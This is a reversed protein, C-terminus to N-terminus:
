VRMIPELNHIFIHQIQKYPPIEMESIWNYTTPQNVFISSFNIEGGCDIPQVFDLGLCIDYSVNVNVPIEFIPNLPDNTQLFIPASFNGGPNDVSLFPIDFTQNNNPTVTFTNPSLTAFGYGSDLIEIAKEMISEFIAFDYNDGSAGAFLLYYIKTASNAINDLEHTDINTSTGVYQTVNNGPNKVIILHNVSPDGAGYVKKAFGKYSNGLYSYDIVTNDYSGSGDAGLGGSIGFSSKNEIDAAFVFLGPVKLTFYQGDTGLLNTGSYDYIEEISNNSYPISTSEVNIYNGGDYMDGGGDSISNGIEGNSFNFINPILNTIELYNDNLSELSGELGNTNNSGAFNFVLNSNGSNSVTIQQITDDSCSNLSVSLSSPNTTIIPADFSEGTLSVSQNGINSEITLEANFTNVTIPNFYLTISDSSFPEINLQNLDTSFESSNFNFNSIELMDCGDNEIYLVLSDSTYEMITPFDITTDSVSINASGVLNLTVPITTEPNLPDNSHIIFTTEHVGAVLDNANITYNVSLSNNNEILYVNNTDQFSFWNPVDLILNVTHTNNGGEYPGVSSTNIIQIDLTGDLLWTAYTAADFSYTNVIDTGNQVNGDDIIEIYDGEIYLQAYESSSDYDGNIIIELTLMESFLSFNGFSHFTQSSYNSYTEFSTTENPLLESQLNFVADGSGSNSFPFALVSVDGCNLTINVASSDTTLIPPNQVVLTQSVTEISYCNYTTLSVTYTGPTDFAHSPNQQLSTSGDGFDWLWFIPQNNTEDEFQVAVNLAPMTDSISFEPISYGTSSISTWNAEWGPYNSSSSSQFTIYFSGTNSILPSLNSLSGSYTAVLPANEDIGDYVRVIDASNQTYFYTFNLTLNYACDPYILFSCNESYDYYNTDGGSDFFFGSEDSTTNTADCMNYASQAFSFNIFLVLSIILSLQNSIKM